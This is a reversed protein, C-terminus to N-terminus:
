SAVHRDGLPRMDVEIYYDIGCNCSLIVTCLLLAALSLADVVAYLEGGCDPCTLRKGTKLDIPIGLHPCTDPVVTFPPFRFSSM